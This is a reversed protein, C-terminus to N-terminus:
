MGKLKIALDIYSQLFAMSVAQWGAYFLVISDSAVVTANFTEETLEVTLELPLRRKRDRYVTEAVEDDQIDMDPSGMDEDGDEQIEEIHMNSEVRSIILDVDHLVLFEVPVGKNKKGSDKVGDSIRAISTKYKDGAV